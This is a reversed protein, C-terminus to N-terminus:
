IDDGFLPQESTVKVDKQEALGLERAIISSNFLGVAAGNFKQTYMIADIQSVIEEFESYRGEFNYRYYKLNVLGIKETLFVNFGEWTYPAHVGIEIIKGAQPGSKIFDKKVIVDRQSREFYKCAMKWMLEPTLKKPRGVKPVKKSRQEWYGPEWPELNGNKRAM